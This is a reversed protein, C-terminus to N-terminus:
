FRIEAELRAAEESDVPEVLIKNDGFKVVLSTKNSKEDWLIQKEIKQKM